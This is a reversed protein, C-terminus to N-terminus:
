KTGTVIPLKELCSAALALYVTKKFSQNQKALLSIALSRHMGEIIVINGRHLLGILVTKDPFNDALNNLKGENDDLIYRSLVDQCPM